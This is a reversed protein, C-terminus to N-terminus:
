QNVDICSFDVDDMGEWKVVKGMTDFHLRRVGGSWHYIKGGGLDGYAKGVTTCGAVSGGGDFLFVRGFEM